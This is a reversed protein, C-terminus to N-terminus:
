RARKRTTRPVRIILLPYIPQVSGLNSVLTGLITSHDSLTPVMMTKHTKNSLKMHLITEM